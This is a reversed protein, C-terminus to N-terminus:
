RRMQAPGQVLDGIGGGENLKGERRLRARWAARVDTDDGGIDAFGVDAMRKCSKGTGLAEDLDAATQGRATWVGRLVDLTEEPERDM